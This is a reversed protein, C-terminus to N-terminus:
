DTRIKKTILYAGVECSYIVPTCQQIWSLRNGQFNVEKVFKLKTKILFYQMVNEVCLM